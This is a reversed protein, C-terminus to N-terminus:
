LWSGAERWLACLIKEAVSASPLPTDCYGHAFSGPFKTAIREQIGREKSSFAQQVIMLAGQHIAESIDNQALTSFELHVSELFYKLSTNTLLVFQFIDEGIQKRLKRVIAGDIIQTIENKMSCSASLFALRRFRGPPMMALNWLPDEPSWAVSSSWSLQSKLLPDVYASVRSDTLFIKFLSGPFFSTLLEFSAHRLPSNNWYIWQDIASAAAERKIWADLLEDSWLHSSSSPVIKNLDSSELTSNMGAEQNIWLAKSKFRLDSTTKANM